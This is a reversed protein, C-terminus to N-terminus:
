KEKKKPTHRPLQQRRPHQPRRQHQQHFSRPLCSPTCCLCCLISKWGCHPEEHVAKLESNWKYCFYSAIVFVALTILVGAAGGGVLAGTYQHPNPVDVGVQDGVVEGATPIEGKTVDPVSQTRLFSSEDRGAYCAAIHIFLFVVAKHCLAM